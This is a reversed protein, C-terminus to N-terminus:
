LCDEKFPITNTLDMYREPSSEGKRFVASWSHFFCSVIGDALSSLKESIQYTNTLNGISLVSEAAAATQNFEIAKERQQEYVFVMGIWSCDANKNQMTKLM